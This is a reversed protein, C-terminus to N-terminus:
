AAEGVGDRTEGFYSTFTPFLKLSNGYSIANYQDDSFDGDRKLNKTVIPALRAICLDSGYVIHEPGAFDRLANLAYSGSVLATDFYMRKLRRLGKEPRGKLLYDYLGSVKAMKKNKQAYEIGALRWALFPITGGGHAVIYTIDPYRDLVGHFMMNTIARTTDFPAEILAAPLDLEPDFQPGPETPHIFVVAKRRNLDEFVPEFREDGLYVGKYNTILAVGDLGLSGLSYALEEIANDTNLVPITAFGGFRDPYRKKAEAIAENGMRALEESFGDPFDIGSFYVGPATISLMAIQIHNKDMEKLSTDPTWEPFDIGMSNQVGAARLADVYKEPFAHHHVDIRNM